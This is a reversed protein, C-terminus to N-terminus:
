RPGGLNVGLPCDFSHGDLRFLNRCVPCIGGLATRVRERLDTDTDLGADRLAEDVADLEDPTFLAATREREADLTPRAYVAVLGTLDANPRWDTWVSQGTRDDDRRDILGIRDAAERCPRCMTTTLGHGLSVTQCDTGDHDATMAGGCKQPTPSAGM